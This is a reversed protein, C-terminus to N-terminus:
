DPRPSPKQLQKRTIRQPYTNPQQMNTTVGIPARRGSTQTGKTVPKPVNPTLTKTLQDNRFRWQIQYPKPTDNTLAAQPGNYRLRPATYSRIQTHVLSGPRLQPKQATQRPVGM